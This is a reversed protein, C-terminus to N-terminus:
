QTKMEITEGYIEIVYSTLSMFMPYKMTIEMTVLVRNKLRWKIIRFPINEFGGKEKFIAQLKQYSWKDISESLLTKTLTIKRIYYETVYIEGKIMAMIDEINENSKLNERKGFKRIAGKGYVSIMLEIIMNSIKGM